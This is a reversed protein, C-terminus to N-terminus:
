GYVYMNPCTRCTPSPQPPSVQRTGLALQLRNTLFAPSRLFFEPILEKVDPATSTVSQWAGAVSNFLRDATDFRGNQLRRLRLMTPVSRRRSVIAHRCLFSMVGHCLRSYGSQFLSHQVDCGNSVTHPMVPTLPAAVQAVGIIVDRKTGASV